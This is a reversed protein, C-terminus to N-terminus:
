TSLVLSVTNNYHKADIILFYQANKFIHGQKDSDDSLGESKSVKDM